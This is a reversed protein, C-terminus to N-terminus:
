QNEQNQAAAVALWQVYLPKTYGTINPQSGDPMPLENQKHWFISSMTIRVPSPIKSRLPDQLPLKNMQNALQRSGSLGRSLVSLRYTTSASSDKKRHGMATTRLLYKEDAALHDMIRFVGKCTELIEQRMQAQLRLVDLFTPDSVSVKRDPLHIVACAPKSRSGDLPPTFQVDATKLDNCEEPTLGLWFLALCCAISNNVRPFLEMPVIECQEQDLNAPPAAANVYRVFEDQSFFYQKSFKEISLADDEDPQPTTSAVYQYFPHMVVQRQTFPTGDPSPLNNLAVWQLYGLLAKNRIMNSRPNSSLSREVTNNLFTNTQTEDWCQFPTSFVQEESRITELISVTRQPRQEAQLYSEIYSGRM